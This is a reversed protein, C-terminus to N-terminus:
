SLAIEKVVEKKPAPMKVFTLAAFGLAILGILGILVKKLM